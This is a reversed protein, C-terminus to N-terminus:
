LHLEGETDVGGSNQQGTVLKVIEKKVRVQEDDYNSTRITSVVEDDKIERGSYVLTPM